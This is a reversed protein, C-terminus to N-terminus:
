ERELSISLTVDNEASIQVEREVFGNARVVLTFTRSERQLRGHFGGEALMAGDLYVRAEPPQVDVRFAVTPAVVADGPAALAAGRHGGRPPALWVATAAAVIGIGAWRLRSSRAPADAPEARAATSGLDTETSASPSVEVIPARDTEDDEETLGVTAPPPKQRIAAELRPRWRARIDEGAFPLLATAFHACSPHRADPNVALARRVAAELEPSVADREVPPVIGERARLLLSSISGRPRFRRGTLMEFLMAGAAYGDCRADCPRGWAQEPAMYFLTGVVSHPTTIHEAGEESMAKAMGFDVVVPHREDGHLPVMINDPKLDRHVTQRRHAHDVAALIAVAMSVADEVSFPAEMAILQQLTPADHLEMALYPLGRAEGVDVIRIIHPHALERVRAGERLFRRRARDMRAVAPDLVKLALATGSDDEAAYVYAMGGRGRLSVLQYPGFPGPIRHPDFASM